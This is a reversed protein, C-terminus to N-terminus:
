LHHSYAPALVGPGDPYGVAMALEMETDNYQLPTTVNAVKANGDITAAEDTGYHQQSTPAAANEGTSSGRLDGSAIGRMSTAAGLTPLARRVWSREPWTRTVRMRGHADHQQSVAYYGPIGDFLVTGYQVTDRSVPSNNNYQVATAAIAGGRGLLM